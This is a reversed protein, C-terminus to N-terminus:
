GALLGGLAADLFRADAPSLTPNGARHGWISPIPLLAANALQAVELRNDEVTFYLDTEGPMILARARISRLAKPFDSQYRANASIDAHQWTWIHALLDDPNRRLFSEDWFRKLFDELSSYGLDRWMETRYFAQSLAWSAYIRAVARLGRQPKEIFRGDVFAPDATMAAKVSELFVFNHPAVRAAGCIVALRDVMLPFLAAWHYAQMGGMSWGCALRIRKIRLHEVLLRHQVVVNDFITFDRYGNAASDPGSISPSSSLGNGFMNPVIVFYRSPDLAGGVRIMHEIDRHQAGFPTCLLIVNSRADDLQGYTQYALRAGRCIQGSQLDVDGADFVSHDMTPCQTM